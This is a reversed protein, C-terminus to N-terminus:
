DTYHSYNQISQGEESNILSKRVDDLTIKKSELQSIFFYLGTKDPERLLIEKYLKTVEKKHNAETLKSM